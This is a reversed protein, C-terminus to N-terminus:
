PDGAGAREGVLESFLAEHRDARRAYSMGLVWLFPYVLGGLLIWPLPVGIVETRRAVPFLAFILPLSGLTLVLIAVTRVALRLQARMLSQVYVEGVSSGADIESAVTTSRPRGTLPRTVRVRRPPDSPTPVSM